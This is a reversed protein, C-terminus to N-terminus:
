ALQSRVKVFANKLKEKAWVIFRNNNLMDDLIPLTYIKSFIRRFLYPGIIKREVFRRRITIMVDKGMKVAKKRESISLEPTYFCPFNAYYSANNLIDEMPYVLYNNKILWGTLETSPLPILNYFIARRLPYRLALDFSMQVDEMTEGPSGILFFLDVDFGLECAEKIRKEIIQINEGKKLNNLVKNSASEVGFAIFDFGAAKMMKLLEFDVKDARIGNPCKIRLDKHRAQILLRCIEEVRGRLLTFNDDLILIDNYGRSYWYNIEAVINQASRVRFAKGISVPASCYVCQYPCGRSTVIGIQKTPYKGMEFLEFKPFHIQDLDKIFYEHKNLIIQDNDRYILGQINDLDEGACLQASSIDGEYIIGYDIASCEMLVNERLSSIHAGGVVIKIKPYKKKVREIFNYFHRYGLTMASFGILEPNFEDIWKGLDEFSYGLNMDLVSVSVGAKQLAEAVYGIGTPPHLSSRNRGKTFVPSVLLV